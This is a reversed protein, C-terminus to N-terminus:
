YYSNPTLRLLEQLITEITRQYSLLTTDIQIHSLKKYISIREELLRNFTRRPYEVQLLPRSARRQAREFLIDSSAHLWIITGLQRLIEQNKPDLIIGGGTSLVMNNRGVLDHLVQSELIRFRAEGQKEILEVISTGTKQTVAHDTDIYDSQVHRALQKGISTKGSGM